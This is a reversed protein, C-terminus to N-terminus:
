FHFMFRRNLAARIEDVCDEEGGERLKGRRVEDEEECNSRFSM